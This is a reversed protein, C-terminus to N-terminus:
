APPRSGPQSPQFFVGVARHLGFPDIRHRFRGAIWFALDIRGLRLVLHRLIVADLGDRDYVDLLLGRLNLDILLPKACIPIFKSLSGFVRNRELHIAHRVDRADVIVRVLIPHYLCLRGTSLVASLVTLARLAVLFLIRRNRRVSVAPALPADPPRCRIRRIAFPHTSARHASRFLGPLNRHQRMIMHKVLQIIYCLRGARLRTGCALLARQAALQVVLDYLDRSISM